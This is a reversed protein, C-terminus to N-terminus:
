GLAAGKIDESKSLNPQACGKTNQTRLKSGLGTKSM